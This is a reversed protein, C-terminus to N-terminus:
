QCLLLEVEEEEEEREIRITLIMAAMTTTTVMRILLESICQRYLSGVYISLSPQQIFDVPRPEM